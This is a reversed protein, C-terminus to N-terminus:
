DADRRGFDLWGQYDRGSVCDPNMESIAKMIQKTMSEREDESLHTRRETRAAHARAASERGANAQTLEGRKALLRQQAGAAEAQAPDAVSSLLLAFLTAFAVAKGSM